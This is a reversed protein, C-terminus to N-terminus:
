CLVQIPEHLPFLRNQIDPKIDRLPNKLKDM